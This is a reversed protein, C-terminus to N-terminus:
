DANKDIFDIAVSIAIRENQSLFDLDDDRDLINQLYALLESKEVEIM